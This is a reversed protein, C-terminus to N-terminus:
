GLDELEAHKESQGAKLRRAAATPNRRWQLPEMGMPHKWPRRPGKGHDPWGTHRERLEEVIPNKTLARLPLGAQGHRARRGRRDARRAATWAVSAVREGLSVCELAGAGGWGPQRRPPFFPGAPGGVLAPSPKPVSFSAALPRRAIGTLLGAGDAAGRQGVIAVGAGGLRFAGRPRRGGV